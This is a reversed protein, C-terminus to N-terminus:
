TQGGGPAPLAVSPEPALATEIAKVLTLGAGAEVAAQWATAGLANRAPTFLERELRTEVESLAFSQHRRAAGLLLACRPPRGDTAAVAALGVLAESILEADVPEAAFCLESTFADAAETSRGRLVQLLGVNGSVAAGLRTHQDDILAHARRLAEDADDYRGDGIARKALNSYLWALHM